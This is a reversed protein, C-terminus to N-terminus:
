LSPGKAYRLSKGVAKHAASLERGLAAEMILRHVYVYRGCNLSHGNPQKRGTVWQMLYGNREIM